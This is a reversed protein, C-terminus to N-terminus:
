VQSLEKMELHLRTTTDVQRMPQSYPGSLKEFLGKLVGISVDEPSLASGSVDHQAM